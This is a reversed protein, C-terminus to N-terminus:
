EAALGLMSNITKRYADHSFKSEVVDCAKSVQKLYLDRDSHYKRVTSVVKDATVYVAAEGFVREFQQPLIVVLGSAIAELIARGFAEIASPHQFFVYYDLSALFDRVTIEDVEHIIWGPPI